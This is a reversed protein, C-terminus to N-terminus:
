HQGPQQFPHEGFARERAVALNEEVIALAEDFTRYSFLAIVPFMKESRLDSQHDSADVPIALLVTDKGIDIGAATALTCVPKGILDKNLTGKKPFVCSVLRQKESESEVVRCHQAKLQTIVASMMEEPAIITQEGACIIGNDFTRGEIIKALAEKLDVDRDIVCQVNGPGVGFSPKGSSYASKVMGPGGTAVVVDVKQMLIKTRELSIEEVEQILDEPAAHRRLLERWVGVLISTCKQGRPHPAIIIANKGKLAAMANGLPTVVPNTCPQIAGVIGVPKAIETIGTRPDRRIIGMSKEGRLGYWFIRAKGRIKKVKYEYGGMGTEEASLRALEEAKFFTAKAIERVIRDVGEQDFDREFIKQAARARDILSSIYPADDM